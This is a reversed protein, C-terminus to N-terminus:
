AGQGGQRRRVGSREKWHFWAMLGSFLLPLLFFGWRGYGLRPDVKQVFGSQNLYVVIIATVIGIVFILGQLAPYPAIRHRQRYLLLGVLNPVSFCLLAIGAVEAGEPILVVAAILMWVTGGLQAGFWGGPSWQFQGPGVRPDNVEM